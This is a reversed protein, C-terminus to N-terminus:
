KFPFANQRSLVQMQFLLDNEMNSTSFELLRDSWARSLTAILKKDQQTKWFYTLESRPDIIPDSLVRNLAQVARVRDWDGGSTIVQGSNYTQLLM